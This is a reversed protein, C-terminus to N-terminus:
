SVRKQEQLALVVGYSCTQLKMPWIKSDISYYFAPIHGIFNCVQRRQSRRRCRCGGGADAEPMPMRREEEPMRRRRCGGGADADAEPMPMRREEEPEPM